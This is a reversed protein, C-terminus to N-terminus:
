KTAKAALAKQKKKGKRANQEAIARIRRIEEQIEEESMIRNPDREEENDEQGEEGEQAAEEGDEDEDDDSDGEGPCPLAPSGNVGVYMCYLVTCVNSTKASCDYVMYVCICMSEYVQM